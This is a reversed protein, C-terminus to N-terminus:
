AQAGRGYKCKRRIPCAGCLPKKKRCLTKAHRVILAHYENFLGADGPLSRHFLTQLTDYGENGRCVGIRSFARRTYADIVFVPKRAAYLLISDATEPGIGKISLLEERLQPAKQRSLQEMSDGYKLLYECLAKIREAKQRYYGSSRIIEGLREVPTRRLQGAHVLRNQELQAIAKEANKWSTNQTLIAGLATELLPRSSVTPWWGQRGYHDLLSSFIDRLLRSHRMAVPPGKM